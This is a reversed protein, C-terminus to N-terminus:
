REAKDLRDLIDELKAEMASQKKNELIDGIRRVEGILQDIQLRSGLELGISGLVPHDASPKPAHLSKLYRGVASLIVLLGVVGSVIV